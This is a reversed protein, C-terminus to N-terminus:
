ATRRQSTAAAKMKATTMEPTKEPRVLRAPRNKRAAPLTAAAKM